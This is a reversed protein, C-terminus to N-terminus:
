LSIVSSRLLAFKIKTRICSITDVFSESGKENIKCRTMVKTVSPRAGGTCAFVPLIFTSKEVNVIRSEYKLKKQSERFKYLGNVDKPCTRALRNFIKVDFFLTCFCFDWRRKAEIDLRAENKTTTTKHVIFEGELPQSHRSLKLMM